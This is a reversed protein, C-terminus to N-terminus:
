SSVLIYYMSGKLLKLLFLISTLLFFIGYQSRWSIPITIPHSLNWKPSLITKFSPQCFIRFYILLFFKFIFISIFLSCKFLAFLLNWQQFSLFYNFFFWNHLIMIILYGLLIEIKDGEIKRVIEELKIWWIPHSDAYHDM